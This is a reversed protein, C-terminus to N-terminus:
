SRQFGRFMRVPLQVSRVRGVPGNRLSRGKPALAAPSAKMTRNPSVQPSLLESVCFPLRFTGVKVYRRM